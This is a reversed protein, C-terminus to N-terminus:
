DLVKKVEEIIRENALKKPDFYVVKYPKIKLNNFYKKYSIKMLLNMRIEFKKYNFKELYNLSKIPFCESKIGSINCQLVKKGASMAERLITSGSGVAVESSMVCKYSSHKAPNNKIYRFKADILRKYFSRENLYRKQFLDKNFNKSNKNKYVNSRKGAIVLKYNYKNVYKSLYKLFDEGVKEFYRKKSGYPWNAVLCIDYIKKNIKNKKYFNSYNYSGIIVFKKINAGHQKMLNKDYQSFCFYEPIFIKKIEQKSKYRIHEISSNQVAICRIKKKHLIKSLNYFKHSIGITTIVLKANIELVLAAFYASYNLNGALIHRITFIIIKPSIYIKELDYNRVHLYFCNKEVKKFLYKNQTLSDPDFIIIKKKPIRFCIKIKFLLKISEKLFNV